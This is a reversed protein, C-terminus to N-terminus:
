TLSVSYIGFGNRMIRSNRFLRGANCEGVRGGGVDFAV